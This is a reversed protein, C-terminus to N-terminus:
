GDKDVLERQTVDAPSSAAVNVHKDSVCKRIPFPHSTLFCSSPISSHSSSALMGPARVTGRSPLNHMGNLFPQAFVQRWLGKSLYLPRRVLLCVSWIM